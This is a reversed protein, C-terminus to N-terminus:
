QRRLKCVNNPWWSRVYSWFHQLGVSPQPEIQPTKPETQGNGTLM